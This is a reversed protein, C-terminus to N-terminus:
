IDMENTKAIHFIIYSTNNELDTINPWRLLKFIFDDLELQLPHNHLLLHYLNCLKSLPFRTCNQYTLYFM